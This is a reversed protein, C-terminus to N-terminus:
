RFRNVLGIAVAFFMSFLIVPLQGYQYYYTQGKVLNVKERLISQTFQPLKKEIEGQPNVIATVGNNTVRILPRGLEIARMQAIEMHQHPGISRGFWADNSVTLLFDTNSRMNARVLEPFAIEYCIAPAFNYGLATLNPQAWEGRSFSSMPLNFLPALPQLLSRFPVFEGIPLLQHKYYRNLHNRTYSGQEQQKQQDNGLTILANYYQTQQSQNSVQDINNALTLHNISDDRGIIGTIIASDNVNAASDMLRLYDSVWAEVAPMAAEPWIIIDATFQHRTLDMYSTITPWMEDQQWKASQAINGQVLAFDVQKDLTQITSVRSLGISFAVIIIVALLGRKSKKIANTAFCGLAVVVLSLGLVGIIAASQSFLGQTQSYGLLLWPFGTLVKGRVFEALVWLCSFFIANHTLHNNRYRGFIASALAPFLALYLALIAMLLISIPLPLGGYDAISVHVWRLGASFLGFGFSLGLLFNKKTSLQDFATLQAFLIAISLPALWQLQYPAFSFHCMIGASFAIFLHAGLFRGQPANTQFAKTM